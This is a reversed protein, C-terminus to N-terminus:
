ENSVGPKEKWPNQDTIDERQLINVNRKNRRLNARPPQRNVSRPLVSVIWFERKQARVAGLSFRRRTPYGRRVVLAPSAMHLVVVLLVVTSKYCKLSFWLSLPMYSDLQGLINQFWWCNSEQLLRKNKM